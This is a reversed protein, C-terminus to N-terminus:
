LLKDRLNESVYYQVGPSDRLQIFDAAADTVFAVNYINAREPLRLNKSFEEFAAWTDCKVKKIKTDAPGCLWIESISFDILEMHYHLPNLIWYQYHEALYHIRTKLFQCQGPEIFKELVGKMKPSIVLRWTATTSVLDSLKAEPHIVPEPLVVDDLFGFKQNWLHRPDDISGREKTKQSQPYTVGIEQPIISHRLPHYKM